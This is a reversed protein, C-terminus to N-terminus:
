YSLPGRGPGWGQNRAMRLAEAGASGLRRIRARCEEQKETEGCASYLRDMNILAIAENWVSGIRRFADIASAYLEEADLLRGQLRFFNGKNMYAMGALLYDEVENAVRAAEGLMDMSAQVHGVHGLATGLQGLTAAEARKAGNARHIYLAQDLVEIAAPYQKDERLSTGLNTLAFGLGYASNAETYLGVARRLMPITAPANGEARMSESLGTLVRAEGEKDGIEKFIKRARLFIEKGRSYERLSNYALGLNNLADAERKRDGCMKAISVASESVSIVTPWDGRVCLYQCIDIALAWADSLAGIDLAAGICAIVSTYERVAWDTADKAASFLEDGDRLSNDNLWGNLQQTSELYYEFLRHLAADQDDRTDVDRAVDRGYLRLLDHLTWARQEPDRTVLHSSELRRLLRRAKGESIDLLYATSRLSIKEGPHISLYRLCRASEVPLRLYSGRFVARIESDEFELGALREAEEEFETALELASLDHDNALIQSILRLAIPLGGCLNALSRLGEQQDVFRREHVQALMEMSRHVSLTSLRFSVSDPIRPGLANRSTIIVRHIGPPPLLDEVQRVEAVNDFLLLVPRGARARSELLDRYAMLNIAPEPDIRDIGLALLLGSIAQPPEIFEKPSEEYGKFDAIIAGGGFRQEQCADSAAELALATKGVGPMGTIVGVHAFEPEISPKLLFSNVDRLDDERGVFRNGMGSTSLIKRVFIAHPPTLTNHTPPIRLYQARVSAMAPKDLVAVIRELHYIECACAAQDELTEREILSLEQNTVFAIGAAGNESVGALDSIFKAKVERFPRQGRPFYVAMIWKHGDRYVLADKKGDPGGLPHSPDLRSFDDNLLIQAALRESPAQGSTWLRLRQWTEDWREEM